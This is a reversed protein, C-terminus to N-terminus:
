SAAGTGRQDHAGQDARTFLALQTPPGLERDQDGVPRLAVAYGYRAAMAEAWARFQARNWEFRHDPHRLHGEPLGYRRNYEANPTTVIVAAPAACAFVHRELAPLRDPDVHEIVEILLVADFGALADDRYTLSSQRLTLRERQHDGLRDLGLRREARRLCAASVDAGVIETFAPDKLLEQLYYGEGCGLDVVRRAGVDRVAQLVADRRLQRLSTPTETALTETALTELAPAAAEVTDELAELRAIADRVYGRQAALYRAVILDRQPHEALWGQGRRVLTDVEAPGVWYHKANDLVPLLVYLQSLAVSLRQQGSLRLDVYPADGWGLDPALPLPRADVQWGLPEFLARVLDAGTLGAQRPVTPSNAEGVRHPDGSPEAGTADGAGGSGRAPLVPIHVELPLSVDVLDPRADCRGAMATTFARRLAVALLSSAAYPRDNVYHGLTFGDPAGKAGRVLGIPDVELLLAVTCRQPTAEPYFVTARGVPLNLTQVRDPHKHLLFGLDDADPATSTLTLLM